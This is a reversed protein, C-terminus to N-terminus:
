YTTSFSTNVLDDSWENIGSLIWSTSGYLRALRDLGKVGITLRGEERHVGPVSRVIASSLREFADLSSTLRIVYEELLKLEVNLLLSLRYNINQVIQHTRAFNEFTERIQLAAKSPKTDGADVAEYDLHSADSSSLIQHCQSLIDESESKEYTAFAGSTRFVVNQFLPQTQEDIGYDYADRLTTDFRLTQEVLHRIIHDSQSTHLISSIKPIMILFTAKIYEHLADSESSLIPQLHTRLFIARTELDNLIHSYFWEPKDMRNTARRGSFHFTFSLKLPESLVSFVKLVFTNLVPERLDLLLLDTFAQSFPQLSVISAKVEDPRSWSVTELQKRLSEELENELSQSLDRISSTIYQRLHLKYGQAPPVDFLAEVSRLRQIVGVVSRPEKSINLVADALGEALNSLVHLYYSTITHKKFNTDQEEVQTLFTQDKLSLTDKFSHNLRAEEKEM